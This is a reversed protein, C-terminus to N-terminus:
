TQLSPGSGRKNIYQVNDNALGTSQGTTHGFTTYRLTHTGQKTEFGSSAIFDRVKQSFNITGHCMFM